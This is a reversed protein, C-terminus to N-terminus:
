THNCHHEVDISTRELEVIRAELFYAVIHENQNLM